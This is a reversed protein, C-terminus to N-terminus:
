LQHAADRPYHLRCILTSGIIVAVIMLAYCLSLLLVSARSGRSYRRASVSGVVLLVVVAFRCRGDVLPGNNFAAVSVPVCYALTSITTFRIVYGGVAFEVLFDLTSLASFASVVLLVM